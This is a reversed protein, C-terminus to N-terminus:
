TLVLHTNMHADLAHEHSHVHLHIHTFGNGVKLKAGIAEPGQHATGEFMM